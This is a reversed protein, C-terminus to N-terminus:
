HHYSVTQTLWDSFPSGGSSRIGVHLGERSEYRGGNNLYPYRLLGLGKSFMSALLHTTKSLM